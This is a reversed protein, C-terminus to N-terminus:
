AHIAMYAYGGNKKFVVKDNEWFLEDYPHIQHVDFTTQFSLITQPKSGTSETDLKKLGDSNHYQL